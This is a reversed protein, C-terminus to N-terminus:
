IHAPFRKLAESYPIIIKTFYNQVYNHYSDVLSMLCATNKLINNQNFFENDSEEM